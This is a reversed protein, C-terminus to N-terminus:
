RTPRLCLARDITKNAADFNRQMQYNFALNQLPWTENPSLEVAKELNATSEAWRGQRRQIAGIALYGEADNPLGRQALLFEQMAHEYDRDGYYLAFGLALHGEPLESQLKLAREALARAKEKRYPVPDFIHYIWSELRSYAAAALAFNPDLQLAREFQQEAENLKERDEREMGLNHAQVFALYAENNETPKRTM